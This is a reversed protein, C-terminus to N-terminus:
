LAVRCEMTLVTWVVEAGHKRQECWSPVEPRGVVGTANINGSCFIVIADSTDSHM